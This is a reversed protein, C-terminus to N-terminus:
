ADPLIGTLENERTDQPPQIARVDCGNRVMAQLQAPFIDTWEGGDPKRAQLKMPEFPPPWDERTEQPASNRLAGVVDFPASTYIDGHVLSVNRNRRFIWFGDEAKFSALKEIARALAGADTPDQIENLETM